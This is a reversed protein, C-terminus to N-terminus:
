RGSFRRFGRPRSWRCRDDAELRLRRAWRPRGSWRTTAWGSGAAPWGSWGATTWGAAPWGATSCRTRRSAAWGATTWGTGPTTRGSGASGPAHERTRHYQDHQFERELHLDDEPGQQPRDHPDAGSGHRPDLRGQQQGPRLPRDGHQGRRHLLAKWGRVVVRASPQAPVPGSPAAGEPGRYRHRLALQRRAPRLGRLQERVRTKRRNFVALEHPDQGTPVHGVVRGNSPDIIAMANEGKHLVLLAPSPTEQASAGAGALLGIWTLWITTRM